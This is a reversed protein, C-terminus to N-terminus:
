TIVAYDLFEDLHYHLVQLRGRNRNQSCGPRMREYVNRATPRVKHM